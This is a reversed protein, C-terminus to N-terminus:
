LQSSVEQISSLQIIACASHYISSYACLYVGILGYLSLLTPSPSGTFVSHAIGLEPWLMYMYNVNRSLGVHRHSGTLGLKQGVERRQVNAMALVSLVCEEVGALKQEHAGM